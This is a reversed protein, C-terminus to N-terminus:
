PLLVKDIVHIVNAAGGTISSRYLGDALTVTAPAPTGLSAVTVSGSGNVNLSLPGNQSNVTTSPRVLNGFIRGGYNPALANTAPVVHARIIATLAAPSAAQISAITPYGAAIFASNGPAFVTVPTSSSNLIAMQGSTNLATAFYTLNSSAAVASALTPAAPLLVADIIHIVGNNALVNPKLVKKGNFFTGLFQAAVPPEFTSTYVFDRNMTTYVANPGPLFANFLTRGPLIHNRIITRLAEAPVSSITSATIGAANFAADNPALVTYSGLYELENAIGSANLATVFITLGEKQAVESINDPFGSPYIENKDRKDCAAFFVSALLLVAINRIKFIKM